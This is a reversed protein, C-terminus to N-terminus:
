NFIKSIALLTRLSKYGLYSYIILGFINRESYHYLKFVSKYFIYGLVGIFLMTSNKIFNYGTYEYLKCRGNM